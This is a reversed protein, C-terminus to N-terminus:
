SLEALQSRLKEGQEPNVMHIWGIMGVLWDRFHLHDDRNQANLGTQKANHLIARIRRITERPVNVHDNVVVGTVSQQQNRRQVRTKAHNLEFGEDQVIHRIRALVYGISPAIEGMTSWTLDDAYRTYKWTLKEAMAEMRRDLKTAIQNSIAPSTCAGQPLARPGTAAYYVTDGLKLEQRPCETCLLALISAVAPSYGLKRFLGDVRPLTITPFFNNLDVNIVVSGGVHPHANTLVSRQAVFGHASPHVPLLNLINTLVWHQVEALKRHPAALRRLGGSKKPVDFCVYHVRTPADSHFALWRLQSISVGVAAALDAPTSLVPLSNSQLLEINSRRDALGRSVGRGLFVIDNARRQAIQERRSKRREEADAKKQAKQRQREERSQAVAREGSSAIFAADSQYEAMKEGLDHIEALEHESILGMGVMTRDIVQVRPLSASPITGRSDLFASRWGPKGTATLADDITIPAFRDTDLGSSGSQPVAGSGAQSNPVRSTQVGAPLSLDRGILSSPANENRSGTGAAAAVPRSLGFLFRLLRILM